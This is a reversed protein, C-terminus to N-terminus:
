HCNSSGSDTFTSGAVPVFEWDYSGSQLTLKLVGYATNNRVQSAPLPSGFPYLGAGGTGAVIQRLGQSVPAGSANMEAFREYNHEHGNIVLEAGANYLVQWLNQMASSDGHNAGSSWRPKHWYALVCQSPNTTLDDQLWTVQASTASVSIESNLAYIRWSGLNYAYFSPVNNFYQFYGAAGSTLYDHNGPSPKTRSKHRGWTPEYCNLYETYSGDIYANDGATFVTGAINDLLQATQEDQTRNCNAIDGAGVLIFSSSSPPTPTAEGSPTQTATLNGLPTSTATQTATPTLTPTGTPTPSVGRTEIILQPAREGSERSRFSIATSGSTTIALSYTGNGMIYSTIDVSTWTGSGFRGSSGLTNGVSPANNYTITSEDWTNNSVARVDYGGNSSSNAYMRLTARTVTAVGQVSFRLYSRITPSGDTRLQTQSGYNTSRRNTDVYSDATPTFTASTPLNGAETPTQTATPSNTSQQPVTPTATFTENPSLTMTPTSTAAPPQTNTPTLTPTATPLPIATQTPTPTPNSTSQTEVIIQPANGGSERSAFSVATGGPVVVALNYSGDATIYATIDVSTWTGGSFGGSSDLASGVSPANNYTVTSESWTDNSVSRVEYGGSSSSNAYIRLTARTVSGSLGQVDFRLYSRVTPSGDARLQTQSGYNTSANSSDVYSDASPTFTTSATQLQPKKYPSLSTSLAEAPLTNVTLLIM